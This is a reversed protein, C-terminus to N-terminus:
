PTKHEGYVVEAAGTRRLRDHDITSHGLNEFYAADIQRAADAAAVEGAAVKALIDAVDTM